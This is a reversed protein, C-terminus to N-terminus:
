EIRDTRSALFADALTLWAMAEVVPVARPVVCPDHRGKAALLVVEGNENITQQEQGITPTPKFAIRLHIDQGTSIGGSIGGAHNSCFTINGADDTTMQDNAESGRMSALAFGEGIEVGKAANISLMAAGLAAHLKDYIPEGWGAPVGGIHCNIIGGVSDCASQAAAIEAEMQASISPDPCRVPSAEVMERSYRASLDKPLQVCGIQSTYARCDIGLPALLQKAVAGGVVRVATERASSRGGGRPDRFGYKCFYTYDAHGPRFVRSLHDYDESHVDRNEIIFAIPAGTTVGQFLGSLFRVSDKENRPSTYSSQGPRRRQADREVAEMDISLGAPCGDIVGGVAEGHSEGFTTLRFLRGTTNM